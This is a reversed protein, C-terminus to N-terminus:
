FHQKKLMRNMLFPRIFSYHHQFNVKTIASIFLTKFYISMSINFVCPINFAAKTLM